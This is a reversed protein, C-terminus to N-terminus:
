LIYENANQDKLNFAVPNPSSASPLSPHICCGVNFPDFSVSANQLRSYGVLVVTDMALPARDCM